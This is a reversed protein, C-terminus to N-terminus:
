LIPQTLFPKDMRLFPNEQPTSESVISFKQKDEESLHTDWWGKLQGTFGAVLVHTTLQDSYNHSTRYATAFM